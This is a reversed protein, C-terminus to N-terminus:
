SYFVVPRRDGGYEDDPLHESLDDRDADGLLQDLVNIASARLLPKNDNGYNEDFTCAPCGNPQGCRCDRLQDRAREALAEFDDYDPQAYHTDLVLTALGGLDSKDVRLELPATQITAHEAAHLGAVYGLHTVGTNEPDVGTEVGHDQYKRSLAAEVDEPVEIWCLQTDM